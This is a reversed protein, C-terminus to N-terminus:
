IWVKVDTRGSGPGFVCLSVDVEVASEMAMISGLLMDMDEFGRLLTWGHAVRMM